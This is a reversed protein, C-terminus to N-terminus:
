PSLLYQIIFIILISRIKSILVPYYKDEPNQDLHLSVIFIFCLIKASTYHSNLKKKKKGMVGLAFGVDEM